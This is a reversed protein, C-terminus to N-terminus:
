REIIKAANYAARIGDGVALGMQRIDSHLVDGALFINGFSTRGDDFIKIESFNKLLLINPKRGVAVIVCDTSLIDGGKTRLVVKGSRELKASSITENQRIIIGLKKANAMLFEIAKPESRSIIRISMNKQLLSIVYDFAVDGGGIVVVDSIKDFDVDAIEYFLRRRKYLQKEGRFNAKKPLTGSAIIAASFIASNKPIKAVIKGNVYELSKVEGHVVEISFQNLQKEMLDIFDRGSIGDPFGPYNRILNANRAIGGIKGKEVLKFDASQRNLELAAAIGAPGAGIILIRRNM